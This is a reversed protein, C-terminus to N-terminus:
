KSTWRDTSDIRNGNGDDGYGYLFHHGLGQPDHPCEKELRSLTDWVRM